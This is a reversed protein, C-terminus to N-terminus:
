DYFENITYTMHSVIIKHETDSTIRFQILDGMTLKVVATGSMTNLQDRSKTSQGMVSENVQIDNVFVALYQNSAPDSTSYSLHWDIKYAQEMDSLCRIYYQGVKNDYWMQFDYGTYNLLKNTMYAYEMASDIRITVSREMWGACGSRRGTQYQDSNISSNCNINGNALTSHGITLNRGVTVDLTNQVSGTIIQPNSTQDVYYFLGYISKPISRIMNGINIM